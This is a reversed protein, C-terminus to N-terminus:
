LPQSALSRRQTSAKLEEWMRQELAAAPPSDIEELAAQLDAFVARMGDNEAQLISVRLSNQSVMSAELRGVLDADEVLDDADRFIERMAANEEHLREAMKDADEAFMMLLVGALMSSKTEYSGRPAVVQGMLFSAALTQAIKMPQVSM